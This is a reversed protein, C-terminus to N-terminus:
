IWHCPPRRFPHSWRVEEMLEFFEEESLHVYIYGVDDDDEWDDHFPAANAVHIHGDPDEDVPGAVKQRASAMAEKGNVSSSPEDGWAARGVKQVGGKQARPSEWQSSSTDINMSTELDFEEDSVAQIVISRGDHVHAATEDTALDKKTPLTEAENM